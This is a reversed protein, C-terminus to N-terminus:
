ESVLEVEIAGNILRLFRLRYNVFGGIKIKSHIVVAIVWTKRVM